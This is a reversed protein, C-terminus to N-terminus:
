FALDGYLDQHLCNFGGASYTLLLPTPRNQGAAHCKRLFAALTAPYVSAELSASREAHSPGRPKSPARPKLRAVWRNAIPALRAYLEERLTQVVAPLPAAFYKYEGIGFRFRAMDICSRFCADDKYIAALETCQDPTLLQPLRAFGDADLSQEAAEWNIDGVLM